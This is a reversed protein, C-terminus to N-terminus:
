INGFKLIKEEWFENDNSKCDVLEIFTKKLPVSYIIIYAKNVGALKCYNWMQNPYQMFEIIAKVNKEATVKLDIVAHKEFLYDLRGKVKMKFSPYSITDSEEQNVTKNDKFEAIGTFSVQKSFKDIFPFDERIKASIDKAISYMPNFMDVNEPDTLIADVLKGLKIKDSEFVQKAIGFQEQKLFSFSYGDLKLYDEFPINDYRIISSYTIM